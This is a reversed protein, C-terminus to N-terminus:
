TDLSFSAYLRRDLIMTQVKLFTRSLPSLKVMGETM